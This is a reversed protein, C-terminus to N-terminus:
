RQLLGYTSRRGVSRHGDDASAARFRVSCASLLVSPWGYRAHLHRPVLRSDSWGTLLPRGGVVTTTSTKSPCGAAAATFIPNNLLRICYLCCTLPRSASLLKYNVFASRILSTLWLATASAIPPKM